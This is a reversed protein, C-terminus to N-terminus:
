KWSTMSKSKGSKVLGVACSHEKFIKRLGLESASKRLGGGLGLKRGGKGRGVTWGQDRLDKLKPSLTRRLSSPKATDPNDSEGKREVLICNILPNVLDVEFRVQPYLILKGQSQKM